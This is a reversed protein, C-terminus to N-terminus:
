SPAVADQNCNGGWFKFGLEDCIVSYKELFELLEDAEIKKKSISHIKEDGVWLYMGQMDDDIICVVDAGSEFETRMIHNRIRCLNGQIGKACSIIQASKPNAKKYEEYEECDVYVKCFPIYELTEVRPRKYSPCCVSINM